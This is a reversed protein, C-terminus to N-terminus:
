KITLTLSSYPLSALFTVILERCLYSVGIFYVPLLLSGSFGIECITHKIKVHGLNGSGYNQLLIQLEQHEEKLVPEPMAQAEM